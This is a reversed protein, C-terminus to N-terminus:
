EQEENNLRVRYYTGLAEANMRREYLHELEDHIALGAIETCAQEKAYEALERFIRKAAFVLGHGALSWIELTGGIPHHWLKTIIIGECRKGKVRWVQVLGQLEEQVINRARAGHFTAACARGLWELDTDSPADERFRIRELIPKM